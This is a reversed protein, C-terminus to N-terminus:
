FESWLGIKLGTVDSNHVGAIVSAEIRLRETLRRVASAQLRMTTPAGPYDDAQFQGFIMWDQSPRLGITIDGKVVEEGSARERYQLDFAAWGDGMRTSFGRGAHFGMALVTERATRTVRQGAGLSFALQRRDDSGTLTRRLFVLTTQDDTATVVDFVLTTRETLGYEGYLSTTSREAYRGTGNPDNIVERSTSVFISGEERAWPGAAAPLTVCAALIALLPLVPSVVPLM